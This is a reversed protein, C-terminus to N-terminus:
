GARFLRGVVEVLPPVFLILGVVLAGAAAILVAAAAVDKAIKALPHYSDTIMNVVVEIATNFLEAMMVKPDAGKALFHGHGRHNSAVLDEPDLGAIAGVACAEQGTCFHSTGTIVGEGFLGDLASEFARILHMTQYHDILQDTDYNM